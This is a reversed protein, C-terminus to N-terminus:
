ISNDIMLPLVARAYIIRRSNGTLDGGALGQNGVRGDGVERQVLAGM